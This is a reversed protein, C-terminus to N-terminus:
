LRVKPRPREVPTPTLNVTGAKRPTGLPGAVPLHGGRMPLRGTEALAKLGEEFGKVEGTETIEVSSLDLLVFADGPNVFGLEAAAREVAGRIRVSQLEAEATEKSARAEAAEAKLKEVESLQAETREQEAKELEELRKRRGASEHNVAKLADRAKALEALADEITTPMVGTGTDTM